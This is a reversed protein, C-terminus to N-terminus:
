LDIVRQSTDPIFIGNVILFEEFSEVCHRAGEYVM